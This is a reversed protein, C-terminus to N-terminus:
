LHSKMKAKKACHRQPQIDYGLAFLIEDIKLVFYRNKNIKDNKGPVMEVQKNLM